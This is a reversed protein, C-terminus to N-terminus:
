CWRMYQNEFLEHTDPQPDYDFVNPDFDDVTCVNASWTYDWDSDGSIEFTVSYCVYDTPVYFVSPSIHYHHSEFTISGTLLSPTIRWYTGGRLWVPSQLRWEMRHNGRKTYPYIKVELEATVAQAMDHEEGDM